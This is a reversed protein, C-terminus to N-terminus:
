INNKDEKELMPRVWFIVLGMGVFTIIGATLFVGNVGKQMLTRDTVDAATFGGYIAGYLAASISSALSNAFNVLATGM